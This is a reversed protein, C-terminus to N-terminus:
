SARGVTATPRATVIVRKTTRKLDRGQEAELKKVSKRLMSQLMNLLTAACSLTEAEVVRVVGRTALM